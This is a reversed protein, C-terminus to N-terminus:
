FRNGTEKWYILKIILETKERQVLIYKESYYSGTPRLKLRYLNICFVMALKKIHFPQRFCWIKDKSPLVKMIREIDWSDMDLVIQKM